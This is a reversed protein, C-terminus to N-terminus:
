RRAAAWWSAMTTASRPAREVEALEDDFGEVLGHQTVRCPGHARETQGVIDREVRQGHVVEDVLETEEGHVQGSM